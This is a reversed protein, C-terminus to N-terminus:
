HGLACTHGPGCPGCVRSVALGTATVESRNLQVGARESDNGEGCEWHRHRRRGQVFVAMQIWNPSSLAKRTRM